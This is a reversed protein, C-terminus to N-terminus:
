FHERYMVKVQRGIGQNHPDSMFLNKLDIEVGFAGFMERFGVNVYNRETTGNNNSGLTYELFIYHTEGILLYNSSSFDLGKKSTSYNLAMSTLFYGFILPAHYGFSLYIDKSTLGDYPENDYGVTSTFLENDYIMARLDVWPKSFDMKEYGVLGSLGYGIGLSIRDWLGFKIKPVMLTSPEYRFTIMYEGHELIQPLPNDVGTLPANDIGVFTVLLLIYM